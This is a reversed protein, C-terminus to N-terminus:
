LLSKVHRITVGLRGDQHNQLTGKLNDDVTHLLALAHSIDTMRNNNKVKARFFTLLVRMCMSLLMMSSDELSSGKSSDKTKIIIKRKYMVQIADIM